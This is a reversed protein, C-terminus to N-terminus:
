GMRLMALAGQIGRRPLTGSRCVGNFTVREMCLSGGCAVGCGSKDGQYSSDTVHVRGKDQSFYGEENNAWAQCNRFIAVGRMSSVAGCGLNQQLNCGEAVLSSGEDRVYVGHLRCKSATCNALAVQGWDDARFGMERSGRVAVRRACIKGGQVAACGQQDCESRCRVLDIATERGYACYGVGGNEMSTCSHARLAAGDVALVGSKANKQFRCFTAGALTGSHQMSLGQSTRSHTLICRHLWACGGSNIMVCETDIQTVSCGILTTYARTSVDVGRWTGTIDVSSLHASSCSHIRVGRTSCMHSCMHSRFNQITSHKLSLFTGHGEVDISTGNVSSIELHSAVVRAGSSAAIGQVGGDIASSRVTLVTGTGHVLIGVYRSSEFKAQDLVVKAGGLVMLNSAVFTVNNFRYTCDGGICMVTGGALTVSTHVSCESNPQMVRIANREKPSTCHCM